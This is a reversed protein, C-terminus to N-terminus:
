QAARKKAIVEAVLDTLDAETSGPKGAFIMINGLRSPDWPKSPDDTLASPDLVIPMDQPLRDLNDQSLGLWLDQKGDDRGMLLKIM